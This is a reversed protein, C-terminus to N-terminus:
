KPKISRGRRWLDVIVLHLRCVKHHRQMIDAVCEVLAVPPYRRQALTGGPVDVHDFNSLFQDDSLCDDLSSGRLHMNVTGNWCHGAGYMLSGMVTAAGILGKMDLPCFIVCMKRARTLAVTARAYAEEEQTHREEEPLDRDTSVYRGYRWGDPMPKVLEPYRVGIVTQYTLRSVRASSPLILGWKQRHALGAAADLTDAVPSSVGEGKVALWLIAFCTVCLCTDLWVTEDGLIECWLQTVATIHKSSSPDKADDLLLKLQHSPPDCPGDLYQSVIRHMDHPQVYETGCRLALPRQLLKQLFM